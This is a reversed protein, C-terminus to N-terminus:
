ASQAPEVVRVGTPSPDFHRTNFTLLVDARAQRACM